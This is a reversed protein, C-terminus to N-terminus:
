IAGVICGSYESVGSKGPLRRRINRYTLLEDFVQGIAGSDALAERVEAPRYGDKKRRSVEVDFHETESLRSLIAPLHKGNPTVFYRDVQDPFSHLKEMTGQTGAKGGTKTEVEGIVTPDGQSFGVVDLRKKELHSIADWCATSQLRWIDCYRVVRDVDPRSAVLLSLLDIGVRHLTGESPAREGWGDHSINPIGLRKRVKWPVSYYTRPTKPRTLYGREDLQAVDIDLESGDPTDRFSAMSETLSYTGIRREMALGVRTLFLIEHASLEEIESPDVLPQVSMVRTADYRPMSVAAQETHQQSAAYESSTSPQLSEPLFPSIHRSGPITLSERTLM